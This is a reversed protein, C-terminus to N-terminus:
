TVSNNSIVQALVWDNRKDDFVIRQETATLMAEYCATFEAQRNTFMGEPVSEYRLFQSTDSVCMLKEFHSDTFEIQVVSKDSEPIEGSGLRISSQYDCDLWTWFLVPILLQKQQEADLITLTTEAGDPLDQYEQSSLPCWIHHVSDM